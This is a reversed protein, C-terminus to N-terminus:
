QIVRFWRLPTRRPQADFQRPRHVATCPAVAARQTRSWTILANRSGLSIGMASMLIARCRRLAAPRGFARVGGLQHVRSLSALGADRALMFEQAYALPTSMILCVDLLFAHVVHHDGGARRRALASVKLEPVDREPRVLRRSADDPDRRRRRGYPLRASLGRSRAYPSRRLLSSPLACVIRIVAVCRMRTDAPIEAHGRRDFALGAVVHATLLGAAEACPPSARWARATGRGDAIRHVGSGPRIL